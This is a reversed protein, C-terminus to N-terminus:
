LSNYLKVLKVKIPFLDASKEARLWSIVNNICKKIFKIEEKNPNFDVDLLALKQRWEESIFKVEEGTNKDKIPMGQEDKKVELNEEAIKKYEDAIKSKAFEINEIMQLSKGLGVADTFKTSHLVFSIWDAIQFKM